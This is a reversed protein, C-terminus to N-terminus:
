PDRRPVAIMYIVSSVYRSQPPQPTAYSKTTASTVKKQMLTALMVRIYCVYIFIYTYVNIYMYIYYCQFECICTYKYILVYMHIYIYRCFIYRSFM